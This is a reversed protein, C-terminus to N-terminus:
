SIIVVYNGELNTIFFESAEQQAGSGLTLSRFLITDHLFALPRLFNNDPQPDCLIESNGNENFKVSVM